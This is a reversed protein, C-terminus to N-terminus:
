GLCYDFGVCDFPSVFFGYLVGFFYAVLFDQVALCSFFRYDITSLRYDITSLRYDITSLDLYPKISIECPVRRVRPLFLRVVSAYRFVLRSLGLGVLLGMLGAIAIMGDNLGLALAVSALGLMTILPLLYVTCAAVLLASDSLHLVVPEGVRLNGVCSNCTNPLTIVNPARSLKAFLATGCLSSTSCVDCGSAKAARLTVWQKDVSLVEARVELM